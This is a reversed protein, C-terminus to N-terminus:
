FAASATAFAADVSAQLSSISASDAADLAAELAAFLANTDTTLTKLAGAVTSTYGASSITSAKHFSDANKPSCHLLEECFSVKADLDSLLTIINPTLTTVAALISDSDTSSFTGSSTTDSTATTIASELSDVTIALALSQFLGGTYAVADSTLTAVDSSISAIDSLVTNASRKTKTVPLASSLSSAFFLTLIINTFQM